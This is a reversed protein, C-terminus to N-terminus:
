VCVFLIVVKKFYCRFFSLNKNKGCFFMVEFGHYGFHSSNHLLYSKSTLIHKEFDYKLSEHGRRLQTVLSPDVINRKAAKQNHCSDHKHILIRKTYGNPFIYTLYSPDCRYIGYIIPFSFDSIIKQVTQPFIESKSIPLSNLASKVIEFWENELKAGPNPDFCATCKTKKLCNKMGCSLCEWTEVTM